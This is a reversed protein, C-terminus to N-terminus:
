AEEFQPCHRCKAATTTWVEKGDLGLREEAPGRIVKLEAVTTSPEKHLCERVHQCPRCSTPAEVRRGLYRCEGVNTAASERRGPSVIRAALEVLTPNEAITTPPQGDVWHSQCGRCVAKGICRTPELLACRFGHHFPLQHQCDMLIVMLFFLRRVSLVTRRRHIDLFLVAIWERFRWGRLLSVATGINAYRWCGRWRNPM